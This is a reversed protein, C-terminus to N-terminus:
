PELLERLSAFPSDAEDDHGSCAATNLDAGCIGCLGRCDPRCLPLLPLALVVHDRVIPELDVEDGDLVYDADDDPVSEILERVRLTEDTTRETLCRYCTLTLPYAVDGQVLIGGSISRLEFEAVLARDPDTRALEVGYEVPTEIVVRRSRGVRARLDAVNTLFPSSEM